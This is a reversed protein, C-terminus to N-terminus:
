IFPLKTDDLIEICQDLKQILENFYKDFDKQANDKKLELPNDHAYSDRFEEEVTYEQLVHNFRSYLRDTYVRHNKIKRVFTYTKLSIKKLYEGSLIVKKKIKKNKNLLTQYDKLATINQLFLEAFARQSVIKQLYLNDSSNEKGYYPITTEGNIYTWTFDTAAQWFWINKQIITHNKFQRSITSKDKDLITAIDSIKLNLIHMLYAPFDDSITNYSVDAFKTEILIEDFLNLTSALWEPEHLIKCHQFIQYLKIIKKLRFLLISDNRFIFPPPNAYPETIDQPCFNCHIDLLDNVDASITTLKNYTDSFFSEYKQVVLSLANSPNYNNFDTWMFLLLLEYNFNTTLTYQFKLLFENTIPYSQINENHVLESFNQNSFKSVIQEIFNMATHANDYMKQVASKLVNFVCSSNYFEPLNRKSSFYVQLCEVNAIIDFHFDGYRSKDFNFKEALACFKSFSEQFKKVQSVIELFLSIIPCDSFNKQLSDLELEFNSSKEFAIIQYVNNLITKKFNVFDTDFMESYKEVIESKRARIQNESINEKTHLKIADTLHSINLRMIWFQECLTLNKTAFSDDKEMIFGWFKNFNILPFNM